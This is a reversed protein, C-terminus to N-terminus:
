LQQNINKIKRLYYGSMILGGVLADIMDQMTDKLGGSQTDKGFVVDLLYEIIELLGSIGLGFFLILVLIIIKSSSNQINLFNLINWGIKVTIFGSWFHLLDDYIKIKDYFNYCSGLLFSFLIFLNGVIFLSKDIIPYNKSYLKNLVFLIVLCFASLGSKGYEGKFIFFIISFIYIIYLILNFISIKKDKM